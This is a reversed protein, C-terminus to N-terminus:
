NEYKKKLEEYLRQESQKQNKMEKEVEKHIMLEYKEMEEDYKENTTIKMPTLIATTDGDYDNRTYVKLTNYGEMAQLLEDKSIRETYDFEIDDGSEEIQKKPIKDRYKYKMEQIIELRTKM